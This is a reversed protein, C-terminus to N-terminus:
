AVNPVRRAAWAAMHARSRLGLVTRINRIHTEVTRVSLHMRHAIQSNALGEMVLRLVQWERQTLMDDERAPAPVAADDRAFTACQDADLDWGAQLAATARSKPLIRTAIGYADSLQERWAPFLSLATTRRGKAAALLRLTREFNNARAACLALGLMGDFVGQRYPSRVIEHFFAESLAVDDQELALAGATVLAAHLHELPASARLRPMVKDLVVAAMDPRGNRMLHRALHGLGVALVAENERRQAVDLCGRLDSLTGPLDRATERGLASLLLMRALLDDDGTRRAIDIGEAALRPADQGDDWRTLMLAGELAAARRPSHAPTGALAQGVATLAGAADHGHATETAALAWTLTLQRDDGTPALLTLVTRVADRERALSALAAPSPLGQRRVGDARETLWAALRELVVDHEGSAFLQRRGFGRLSMPIAFDATRRAEDKHAVVLSKSELGVLLDAVGREGAHEGADAVEAVEVSFVGPLLSLRRFLRQEDAPLEDYSWSLAAYWSRHRPDATRWGQNLLSVHDTLRRRIEATPLAGALQAALELPLPLGDLGACIAGVDAANDATLEFEHDVARCREVFLRVADARMCGDLTGSASDEPLSLGALRYVVEGSLRWPERSTTIVRYDPYRFL